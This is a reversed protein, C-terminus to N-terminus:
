RGRLAAVRRQMEGDTVAAAGKATLAHVLLRDNEIELTLTGPTLTISNGLIVQDVPQLEKVDVAVVRTSLDLKRALVVQAVEISSLVIERLLWLWYALLGFSFQLAYVGSKFYGMRSALYVTLVCSFAGLGLLLPKYMGSWLLWATILFVSLLLYARMRGAGRSTAATPRPSSM